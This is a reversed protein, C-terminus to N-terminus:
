KRLFQYNSKPCNLITQVIHEDLVTSINLFGNESTEATNTLLTQIENTNGGIIIKCM